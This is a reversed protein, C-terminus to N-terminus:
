DTRWIVSRERFTGDLVVDRVRARFLNLDGTGGLILHKRKSSVDLIARPPPPGSGCALQAPATAQGTGVIRASSGISTSRSRGTSGRAQEACPARRAGSEGTSPREQEGRPSRQKRFHRRCLLIHRTPLEARCQRAADGLLAWASAATRLLAYATLLRTMRDGGPYRSPPPTSTTWTACSNARGEGTLRRPDRRPTLPHDNHPSSRPEGRIAWLLVRASMAAEGRAPAPAGSGLSLGIELSDRRDQDADCDPERPSINRPIAPRYVVEGGLRVDMVVVIQGGPWTSAKVFVRNSADVDSAFMRTFASRWGGGTASERPVTRARRRRLDAADELV